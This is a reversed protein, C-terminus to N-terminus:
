FITEAKARWRESKAKYELSKDTYGEANAKESLTLYTQQAKEYCKRAEDINQIGEYYQGAEVYKEAAKELNSRVLKSDGNIEWYKAANVRSEAQHVLLHYEQNKDIKKQTKLAETEWQIAASQYNGQEAYLEASEAHRGRLEAWFAGKYMFGFGIVTAMNVLGFFFIGFVILKHSKIWDWIIQFVRM